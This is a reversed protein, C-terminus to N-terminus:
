EGDGESDAKSEILEPPLAAPPLQAVEWQPPALEPLDLNVGRDELRRAVVHLNAVQGAAYNKLHHLNRSLRDIEAAQAEFRQRAMAKWLRDEQARRKLRDITRVKEGFWNRFVLALVAASGTPGLVLALLKAAGADILEM